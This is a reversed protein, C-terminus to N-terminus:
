VAKHLLVVERASPLQGKINAHWKRSPVSRWIRGDTSDLHESLFHEKLGCSEMVSLYRPLQVAPDSFAVMQVIVSEANVIKSLASFTAQIGSFYRDLNSARANMTYYSTGAGDLSNAIWFPAPTEKGGKVQWRHYLIHVGPYPPSMLILSPAPRDLGKILSSIEQARRKRCLTRSKGFAPALKDAKRVEMSYVRGADMMSTANHIIRERFKSATPFSKRGDLAWQASKLIVCRAFNQQKKDQIIPTQQLALEVTKRIPWTQPCKVNRFYGNEDWCEQNTKLRLNLNGPLESFWDEMADYDKCRMPLTKTETVFVALSSLDTGIGIRGAARAEVLTTGGGVFPDVVLDGPRSFANIASRAFVPSFRAPYKYYDHTLGSVPTQSYISTLLTDVDGSPLKIHLKSAAM